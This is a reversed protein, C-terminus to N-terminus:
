LSFQAISPHYKGDEHLEHSRLCLLTNFAAMTYGLRAEFYRWVRHTVKKFHCVVTLMSLMTEVTMRDSWKRQQCIKLNPPDPGGNALSCHFHNDALVIMQDQFREILHRFATGDYVNAAAAGWACVLGQGNLLVGLKGGVIWRHNSLTKRGVQKPSRGARRPHILEVGFGDVVGFFTPDAMFRETWQHHATLLRFLRTREPLRPFLGLWDRRLWRDFAREGVGKIAFLLGLTVIEGPWLKCRPDKSITALKQDVRVFLEIIFDETCM